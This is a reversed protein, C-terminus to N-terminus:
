GMSMMMPSLVSLVTLLLIKKLYVPMKEQLLVLIETESIDCNSLSQEYCEPEVIDASTTPTNLDPKNNGEFPKFYNTIDQYYAADKRERETAIKRKQSSFKNYSNLCRM